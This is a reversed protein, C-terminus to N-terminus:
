SSKMASAAGSAEEITIPFIKANCFNNHLLSYLFPSLNKLDMGTKNMFRRKRVVLAALTCVEQVIAAEQKGASM